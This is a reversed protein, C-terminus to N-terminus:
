RRRGDELAEIDALTLGIDELMRPSLRRLDRAARRAALFAEVRERLARLAEVFRYTTIAGFPPNPTHYTMAM